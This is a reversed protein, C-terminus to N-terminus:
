PMRLPSGSSSATLSPQACPASRVVNGPSVVIAVASKAISAKMRSYNKEREEQRQQYTLRLQNIVAPSILPQVIYGRAARRKPRRASREAQRQQDAQFMQRELRAVSASIQDDENSLTAMRQRLFETQDAAIGPSSLENELVLQQRRLDVARLRLRERERRLNDYEAAPKTVPQAM